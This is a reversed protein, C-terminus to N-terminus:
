CSITSIHTIKYRAVINIHIVDHIVFYIFACKVLYFLDFCFHKDWESVHAMTVQGRKMLSPFLCFKNFENYHAKSFRWLIMGM